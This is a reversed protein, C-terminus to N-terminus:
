NSGKIKKKIEEKCYKTAKKRDFNKSTQKQVMVCASITKKLNYDSYKARFVFLIIIGIIVLAIMKFNNSM